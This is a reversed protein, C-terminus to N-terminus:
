QFSTTDLVALGSQSTVLVAIRDPGLAVIRTRYLSSGQIHPFTQVGTQLGTTLDFRVIAMNGGLQGDIAYYASDTAVDFLMARVRSSFSTLGTADLDFRQELVGTTRDLVTGDIFFVVNDVTQVPSFADVDTFSTTDIPTLGSGDPAYREVTFNERLVFAELVGTADFTLQRDTSRNSAPLDDRDIENAGITGNEAYVLGAFGNPGDNYAAAVGSPTISSAALENIVRDRVGLSSQFAEAVPPLPIRRNVLLANIDFEAIRADDLFSVFLSQGDASLSLRRPDDGIFVTNTRDLTTGDYVTISNGTAAQNETQTTLFIRNSTSDFVVDAFNCPVRTFTAGEVTTATEPLCTQTDTPALGSTDYVIARNDAAIIVNGNTVSITPNQAALLFDIEFRGVRRFTTADEITLVGNSIALRSTGDPTFAAGQSFQYAGEQTLAIPDRLSSDFMIRNGLREIPSGSLATREIGTFGNADFNLRSVSSGELFLQDGVPSFAISDADKTVSSFTMADFDSLAVPRQTQDDVITVDASSAVSSALIVAITTNNVPSIDIDVVRTQAPTEFATAVSLEADVALTNANIRWIDSGPADLGVYYYSGDDAVSVFAPESPFQPGIDRTRTVPDFVILSNPAEQDNANTLLLARNRTPDSHVASVTNPLRYFPLPLEFAVPDNSSIQNLYGEFVDSWSVSGFIDFTADGDDDLQVINPQNIRVATGVSGRCLTEGVDPQRNRNIFELDSASECLATGGLLESDYDLTFSFRTDISLPDAALLAPGIRKSITFESISETVGTIVVRFFDAAAATATVLEDSGREFRFAYAAEVTASETSMTNPEVFEVIFGADTVLRGALEIRTSSFLAADLSITVLGTATGNLVPDACATFTVAVTDGAGIQFDSDNDTLDIAAGGGDQCAIEFGGTPEAFRILPTIAFEAFQVISEASAPGLVIVDVTSSDITLTGFSMPTQGGGGGGGGSGGGGG